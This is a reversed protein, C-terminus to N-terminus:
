EEAEGPVEVIRFHSDEEAADPVVDRAIESDLVPEEPGPVTSAAAASSPTAVGDHDM